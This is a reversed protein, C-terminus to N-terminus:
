ASRKPQNKRSDYWTVQGKSSEIQDNVPDFYLFTAEFTINSTGPDGLIATFKNSGIEHQNSKSPTTDVARLYKTAVGSFYSNLSSM